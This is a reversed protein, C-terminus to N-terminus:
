DLNAKPGIAVFSLYSALFATRNGTQLLSRWAQRGAQGWGWGM